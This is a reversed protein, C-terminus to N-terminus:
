TGCQTHILHSDLDWMPYSHSLQAVYLFSSGCVWRRLTKPQLHHWERIHNPETRMRTLDGGHKGRPNEWCTTDSDNIQPRPSYLKVRYRFDQRGSPSKLCVHWTDRILTHVATCTMLLTSPNLIAEVRPPTYWHPPSVWV